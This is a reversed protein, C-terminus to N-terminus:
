LETWKYVTITEDDEKQNIDENINDTLTFGSKSSFVIPEKDSLISDLLQSMANPEVKPENAGFLSMHTHWDCKGEADEFGITIECDYTAIWVSLRGTKSKISCDFSGDQKFNLNGIFLPYHKVIHEKALNSFESQKM